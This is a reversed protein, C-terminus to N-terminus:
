EIFKVVPKEYELNINNNKKRMKILIFLLIM